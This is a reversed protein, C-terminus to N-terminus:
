VSELWHIPSAQYRNLLAHRDGRMTMKMALCFVADAFPQLGSDTLTGGISVTNSRLTPTSSTMPISSANAIAAVFRSCGEGSGFQRRRRQDTATPPTAACFISQGQLSEITFVSALTGSPGFGNEGSSSAM